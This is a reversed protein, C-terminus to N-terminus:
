GRMGTSSIVPYPSLRFKLAARRGSVSQRTRLGTVGRRINDKISRIARHAAAAEKGVSVCSVPNRGSVVFM